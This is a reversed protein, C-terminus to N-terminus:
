TILAVMVTKSPVSVFVSVTLRRTTTVKSPVAMAVMCTPITTTGVAGRVAYLRYSGNPDLGLGQSPRPRSPSLAYRSTWSGTQAQSSMTQTVLATM